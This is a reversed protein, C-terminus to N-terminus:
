SNRAIVQRLYELATDNDDIFHHAAELGLTQQAVFM